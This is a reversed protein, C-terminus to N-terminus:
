IEEYIVEEMVIPALNRRYYGASLAKIKIDIYFTMVAYLIISILVMLIIPDFMEKIAFVVMLIATVAVIAIPLLIYPLILKFYNFKHGQMLRKSEKFVGVVDLDQRDRLIYYVPMFMFSFIIGPIVFLAYGVAIIILYLVAALINRGFRETFPAIIYELKLKAGDVMDLFGFGIGVNFLEEIPKILLGIIGYSAASKQFVDMFYPAMAEMDTPTPMGALEGPNPGAFAGIIQRLLGGILGVIIILVVGALWNGSLDEKSLKRLEQNTYNM